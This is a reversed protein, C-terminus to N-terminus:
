RVVDPQASPDVETNEEMRRLFKSLRDEVAIMYTYPVRTSSDPHKRDKIKLNSIFTNFNNDGSQAMMVGRFYSFYYWTARDAKLYIDIMDGSRRRQIEVYGDVYVNLPQGGIIGIGIKGTSRFSSSMENWRLKVDNLLLEYNYEKPLNKSPGFLDTEMKLENAVGEGLLDNMGRTVFASAVNVPKLTPMMRIGDSMMKLAEPSFFFDLGLIANIEVKGSDPTQTINGAAAMKVLDFNAGFNLKGEGSLVCTNRDLAVLNGSKLPDAIKEASTIEYRGKVKNYWLFGSSTVLGADTWSKQASLFAPYIHISDINLYSGSFVMNDNSDRPKDSIPIM